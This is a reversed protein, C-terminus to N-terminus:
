CRFLLHEIFILNILGLYGKQIYKRLLVDENLIIKNKDLPMGM